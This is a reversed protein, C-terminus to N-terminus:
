EGKLKEAVSLLADFDTLLSNVRDLTLKGSALDEFAERLKKVNESATKLQEATLKMTLVSRRSTIWDDPKAISTPSILPDIVLRQERYKPSKYSSAIESAGSRAWFAIPFSVVPTM